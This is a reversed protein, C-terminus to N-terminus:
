TDKLCFVQRDVNKWETADANDFYDIFLTYIGSDFNLDDADLRLRNKTTTPSNKTFSSGNSTDSGSTVVLKADALDTGLRGVHGIVARVKDNKGVSIADGAGNKVTVDKTLGRNKYAVIIAM